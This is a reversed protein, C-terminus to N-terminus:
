IARDLLTLFDVVDIDVEEKPFPLNGTRACKFHIRCKPCFALMRSAGTAKAEKLRKLQINKSTSDCNMLASVGCCASEEGYSEMEVLKLGPVKELLMRPEDVVGIHRALRCGDHYTVTEAVEKTLKLKGDELQDCLFESIHLVEIDFDPDVKQYDKTLARFCEPCTTLVTKAGTSKIWSINQRALKEFTERDGAWYQDHGCCREEAGVIPTIGLKNLIRVAARTGDLVRDDKEGFIVALYPACGTFLLYEGKEAVNMGEELWGLRNQRLDPNTMLNALSNMLGGESCAPANGGKRATERMGRIFETYNVKYPCKASCRACTLCIWIDKAGTVQEAMGEMAKVVILRPAFDPNEKTIPCLSTCKGCEVCDFAGTKKILGDLRQKMDDTAM